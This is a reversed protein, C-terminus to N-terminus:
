EKFSDVKRSLNFCDSTLLIYFVEGKVSPSNYVLSNIVVCILVSQSYNVLLNIIKHFVYDYAFQTVPKLFDCPVCCEKITMSSFHSFAKSLPSFIDAMNISREFAKSVM